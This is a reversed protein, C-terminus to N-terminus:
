CSFEMEVRRFTMALYLTVVVFAIFNDQNRGSLLWLLLARSFSKVVVFVGAVLILTLLWKLSRINVDKIM